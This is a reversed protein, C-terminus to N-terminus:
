PAKDVRDGIRVTGAEVVVANMGRLRHERGPGTNVWRGADRGFREIFKACGTHPLPSVELVADGIRLRAGPPLNARGLDLDVYLQDGALARRDPDVAVLAAARANMLTLQRRVEATGDESHRSGRALWNDGVLGVEPDLAAEALVEREFHDPRRVILELSGGDRPSGLVDALAADLETTTRHAMADAQEPGRARDLPNRNV